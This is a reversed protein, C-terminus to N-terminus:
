RLTKQENNDQPHRQMVKSRRLSDQVFPFTEHVSSDSSPVAAQRQLHMAVVQQLMAQLESNAIAQKELHSTLGSVDITGGAGGRFGGTAASGAGIGSGAGAVIAAPLRPIQPM